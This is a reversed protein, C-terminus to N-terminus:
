SLSDGATMHRDSLRLITSKFNHVNQKTKTWQVLTVHRGDSQVFAPSKDIQLESKMQFHLRIQVRTYTHSFYFFVFLIMTLKYLDCM